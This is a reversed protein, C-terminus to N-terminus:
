PMDVTHAMLIQYTPTENRPSRVKLFISAEQKGTQCELVRSLLLSPLSANWSCLAGREQLALWM